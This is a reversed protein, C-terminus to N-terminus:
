VDEGESYLSFDNLFCGAAFFCIGNHNNVCHNCKYSRQVCYNLFRNIAEAEEKTWEM